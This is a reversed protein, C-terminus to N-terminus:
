CMGEKFIENFNTQDSECDSMCILFSKLRELMLAKRIALASFLFSAHSNKLFVFVSLKYLLLVLYLAM